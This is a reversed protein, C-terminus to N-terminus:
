PREITVAVNEAARIASPKHVTVIMKKIAFNELCLQAIAEALAEILQFQKEELLALVKKAVDNYNVTAGITDTAIAERTDVFLTLDVRLTQARKKEWEHIGIKVKATLGTITLRDTHTM